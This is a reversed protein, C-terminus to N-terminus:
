TRDGTSEIRNKHTELIRSLFLRHFRDDETLEPHFTTLLINGQELAVPEDRYRALVRVGKGTRMVRPARIFLGVAPRAEELEACVRLEAEFSHVQRGWGNRNVHVDALGLTQVRPDPDTHSLMIMGACTGWVPHTSCFETLAARLEESMVRTMTTSEGGPWILADLGDLDRPTRVQVVDCSLNKLRKEHMPFDGQLALVGVRAM